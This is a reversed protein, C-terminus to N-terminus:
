LKHNTSRAGMSLVRHAQSPITGPNYLWPEHIARSPSTDCEKQILWKGDVPCCAVSTQRQRRTMSGGDIAFELDCVSEM